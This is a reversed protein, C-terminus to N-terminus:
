ALSRHFQSPPSTIPVSVVSVSPERFDPINVNSRPSKAPRMRLADPLKFRLANDRARPARGCRKSAWGWQFLWCARTAAAEPIAARLYKRFQSWEGCFYFIVTEGGRDEQSPRNRAKRRLINLSINPEPMRNETISVVAGSRHPGCRLKAARSFVSNM